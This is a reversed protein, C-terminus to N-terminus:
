KEALLSDIYLEQATFAAGLAENNNYKRMKVTIDLNFDLNILEQLKAKASEFLQPFEVILNGGILLYKPNYTYIMNSFATAMDSTWTDLMTVAWAEGRAFAAMLDATERVDHGQRRCERIVGPESLYASLCGRKGCACLRGEKSFMTHGVEGAANNVGRIIRGQYLVAIGLGSGMTLYAVDEHCMEPSQFTAGIVAMKIDNDVCVPLGFIEQAMEKLSINKWGLQPSFLVGGKQSDILGCCSIGVCTIAKESIGSSQCLKRFLGAGMRLLEWADAQGNDVRCMDEAVVARDCNIICVKLYDCDIALGLSLFADKNIGINIGNRGVGGKSFAEEQRILNHELLSAIIRTISTPSMKVAKAIDARSIPEPRNEQIFRMVAKSNNYRLESQRKAVFPRM